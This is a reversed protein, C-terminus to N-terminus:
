RRSIRAYAKALSTKLGKLDTRMRFGAANKHGGGGFEEAIEAVNVAGKSRLSAKWLGNDLERLLASVKVTDIMRPFNSFNETDEDQTGTKRFMDRSIYTIALDNKIELTNLTMILLDFRKKGWTEYIADAIHNPDAGSTVLEAGVRLVEATTNSYRFTGTDVSVATYLNSAMAATVPIGLTKIIRYVMIGTAAATSDIWRVDGFDAETEHHDIVVSYRFGGASLAAREPSNCDLLVLTCNQGLNRTMRSRFKEYGPLFRYSLPIPDRSYVFTKKGQFELAMSLALASGIADGDPNIHTAIFFSDGQGLASLIKKPAKM